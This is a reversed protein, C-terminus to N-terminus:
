KMSISYRVVSLEDNHQEITYAKGGKLWMKAAVGFYSGFINIVMDPVDAKGLWTGNKDFVDGGVKGTKVSYSSIAIVGGDEMPILGYLPQKAPSFETYGVAKKIVEESILQEGQPGFSSIVEQRLPDILSMIEEEGLVAPKYPHEFVKKTKMDPSWRTIEYKTTLASYIAGDNGFATLGMGNPIMKFYQALFKPIYDPEGMRSGVFRNIQMQSLVLQEESLDGSLLGTKVIMGEQGAVNMFFGAMRKGDPSFGASVIIKGIDGPLYTKRDKYNMDSDYFTFVSTGQRNEHVIGSQDALITFGRLSIFEEPGNGKKGIQRLFTGDPSFVVIRNGSEDMVFIQGADNIQLATKTGSWLFHDDTGGGFRLEEKFVLTKGEGGILSPGTMLGMFVLCLGYATLSKM